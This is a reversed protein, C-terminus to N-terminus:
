VGSTLFGPSFYVSGHRHGSFLTTGFVNNKRQFYDAQQVPFSNFANIPGTQTNPPFTRIKVTNYHFMFMQILMEPAAKLTPVGVCDAQLLQLPWTPVPCNIRFIFIVQVTKLHFGKPWDM